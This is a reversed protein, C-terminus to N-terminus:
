RFTIIQVHRKGVMIEQNPISILTYTCDNETHAVETSADVFVQSQYLGSKISAVRQINIDGINAQMKYAEDIIPSLFHKINRIHRAFANTANDMELALM